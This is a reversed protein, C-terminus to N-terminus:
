AGSDPPESDGVSFDETTLLRDAERLAELHRDEDTGGASAGAIAVNVGRRDIVGIGELVATSAALRVRASRSNPDVEGEAARVLSTAAAIAGSSLIARAAAAAGTVVDHQTRELLRVLRLELARERSPRPRPRKRWRAYGIKPDTMIAWMVDAPSRGDALLEGARVVRMRDVAIAGARIRRTPDHSM